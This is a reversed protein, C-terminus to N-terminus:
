VSDAQASLSGEDAHADMGPSCWTHVRVPEAPEGTCFSVSNVCFRVTSRRVFAGCQV